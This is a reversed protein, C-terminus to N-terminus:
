KIKLFKFTDSEGEDSIFSLFYQGCALNCIDITTPNPLASIDKILKKCGLQDIISLQGPSTTQVYLCDKAPNPYVNMNINKQNKIAGIVCSGDNCVEIVVRQYTRLEPEGNDSLELILHIIDGTSADDPVRYTITASNANELPAKLDTEGSYFGAEHYIWWHYSLGDGDPDYSETADLNIYGGAEKKIFLLEEDTHEKLKIVPNHNTAEASKITWQMRAEFDWSMEERWRFVPALRNWTFQSERPTFAWDRAPVYMCYSKKYDYPLIYQEDCQAAEGCEKERRFRGGWSGWAISDPYSLGNNILFLFSPSQGESWSSGKRPYGDALPSDLEKIHSSIWGPTFIDAYGGQEDDIRCCSGSCNDSRYVYNNQSYEYCSAYAMGRYQFVSRLYTVEPYNYAIWGGADDQGAIDYARIKSLLMSKGSADMDGHDIDYVAQALTNAGGWILIWV